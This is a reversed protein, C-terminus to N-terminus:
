PAAAAPELAAVDPVLYVELREQRGRLEIQRTELGGLAVGAGAMADHSAVLQVGLPKTEAELRSAINVTDGVATLTRAEGFGMDGVIVPGFHLGIGIRLPVPLDHALDRNLAELEAVMNRAAALAAARARAPDTDLGFLAMVGDGIFKDVYGGASTVAQGMAAFYRNLLFVLDYPLKQETLATFDRLDAFLVAIEREQGQHYGEAPGPAPATADPALLPTVTCDHDPRIQCALRVDHDAGVRRLVRAEDPRPAPLHALGEEVRVRCTSCRGRGGCVSAHPIRNLHSADLVSAGRHITVRRGGPYTLRVLGQRRRLLDVAPRMVLAAVLLGAALMLLGERIQVIRAAQARDLAHSEALIRASWGPDAALQLIDRGATWVGALAAAPLILAASLALGQIRQYGPRLRLWQHLGITCHGWVLLLLLMQRYIGGPAFVYFTGLMLHYSDQQGYLEHALRTHVAHALLWVPISFGFTLQAWEAPRLRFSRRQYVAWLALSFHTLLAGYLAVTALPNRWLLVFWARGAELAGLSVLGLAHNLLHTVVFTFLVLGSTLRIRGIM